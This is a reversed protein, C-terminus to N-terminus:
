SSFSALAKYPFLRRCQLFKQSFPILISKMFSSICQVFDGSDNRVVIAWGMYGSDSGDVNCKLKGVDPRWQCVNGAEVSTCTITQSNHVLELVHRRRDEKKDALTKHVLKNISM